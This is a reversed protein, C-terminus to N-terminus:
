ENKKNKRKQKINLIILIILGCIWVILALDNMM